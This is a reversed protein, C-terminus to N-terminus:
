AARGTAAGQHTFGCRELSRQVCPLHHFVRRVRNGELLNDLALVAAGADIGVMDRAMWGRDRNISSLGYRGLAPSQAAALLNELVLEPCHALSALTATVHATGDLPGVPAYCRYVFGAPGGAPGDGASVGWFHRYTAFRDAAARCVRYNAETALAAEAALDVGGPVGWRSLDLLDLGYQFVFLGLDANNFRLGEVTGYFPRLGHWVSPPLARAPDAGTALVYLFVTEGNLRDWTCPLMRGDPARGHLLLPPRSGPDGTWYTWDVREYLRTAADELRGDRLFAAAWLAGAALWGSDITSLADTGNVAGTRSDVFHPVVGHDHPLRNLATDLGTHLREVAESRSLLRYPAASALAVAVWGMGTAATSCLGGARRPGHNDQRDLVLGSTAQNELFYRLARRQLGFVFRREAATLSATGPM